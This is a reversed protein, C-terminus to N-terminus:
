KISYATKCWSHEWRLGKRNVRGKAVKRLKWVNRLVKFDEKVLVVEGMELECLEIREPNKKGRYIHFQRLKNLYCKAFSSWYCNVKYQLKRVMKPINTTEHIFGNPKDKLKDDISNREYM